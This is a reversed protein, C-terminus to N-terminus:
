ESAELGHGTPGSLGPSLDSSLSGLRQGGGELRPRFPPRCRRRLGIQGAPNLPPFSLFVGLSEQRTLNSYKQYEWPVLVRGESRANIAFDLDPLQSSPLDFLPRLCYTLRAKKRFKEIMRVFNRARMSVDDKDMRPKVNMAEAEGGRIRVLDVSPLSQAAQFHM